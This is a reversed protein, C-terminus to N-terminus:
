SYNTPNRTHIEQQKTPFTNENAGVPDV